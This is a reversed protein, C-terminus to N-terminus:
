VTGGIETLSFPSGFDSPRCSHDVLKCGSRFHDILEIPPQIPEFVILPAFPMLFNYLFLVSFDRIDWVPKAFNDFSINFKSQVNERINQSLYGDFCSSCPIVLRICWSIEDVWRWHMLLYGEALIVKVTSIYIYITIHLINYKSIKNMVNICRNYM